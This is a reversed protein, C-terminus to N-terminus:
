ANWRHDVLIRLLRKSKTTSSLEVMPWIEHAFVPNFSEPFEESTEVSTFHGGLGLMYVKCDVIALGWNLTKKLM